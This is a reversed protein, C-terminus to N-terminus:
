EASLICEVDGTFTGIASPDEYRITVDEGCDGSITIEGASDSCFGLNEANISYISGDTSAASLEGTRQETVMGIHTITYNGTVPGDEEAIAALFSDGPPLPPQCEITGENAIVIITFGEGNGDTTGDCTVPDSSISNQACNFNTSADSGTNVRTLQQETNAESYEGNTNSENDVEDGGAYVVIRSSTFIGALLAATLLAAISLTKPSM